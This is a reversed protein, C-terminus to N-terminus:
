ADTTNECKWQTWRRVHVADVDVYGHERNWEEKMGWGSAYILGFFTLLIKLNKLSKKESKPNLM